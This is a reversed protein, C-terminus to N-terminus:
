FSLKEPYGVTYDYAVVNDINDLANVVAKHAETINLCDGAYNEVAAIMAQWEAITYTFEVGGFAKTLSDRGDLVAADVSAKLRSRQDFTLWMPNGNIMFVNVNASSDWAAIEALKATKANELLEQATPEEAEPDVFEQVGLAECFENYEKFEAFNASNYDGLQHLIKALTKRLIKLENGQPNEEGIVSNKASAASRADDVEYVDYAWVEKEVPDEDEGGGELAVEKRENTYVLGRNSGTLRVLGTKHRTEFTEKYM